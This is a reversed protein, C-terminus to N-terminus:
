DPMAFPRDEKEDQSCSRWASPTLMAASAKLAEPYTMGGQHHSRTARQGKHEGSGRHIRHHIVERKRDLFHEDCKRHECFHAAQEYRHMQDLEYQAEQKGGLKGCSTGPGDFRFHHHHNHRRPLLARASAAPSTRLM